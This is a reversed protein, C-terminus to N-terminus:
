SLFIYGSSSLINARTENSFNNPVKSIIYELFSFFFFILCKTNSPPNRNADPANVSVTAAQGPAWDGGADFTIEADNYTIIM